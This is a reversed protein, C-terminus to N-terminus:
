EYQQAECLFLNIYKRSPHHEPNHINKTLNPVKRMFDIFWHARAVHKPLIEPKANHYPNDTKYQDLGDNKQPPHMEMNNGVKMM